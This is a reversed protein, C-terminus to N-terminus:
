KVILSAKMMPHLTCIYPFTGKKAAKYKWSSGPAMQKSKFGDTATADHPFADKNLWLVTDGQQVELTQPSFKMGEIVVQHTTPAAVASTGHTALGLLAATLLLASAGFPRLKSELLTRV